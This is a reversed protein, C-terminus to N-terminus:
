AFYGHKIRNSDEKAFDYEIKTTGFVVRFDTEEIGMKDLYKM